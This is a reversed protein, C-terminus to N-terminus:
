IQRDGLLTALARLADITTFVGVIQGNERVVVSGLKQDAMVQAVKQIPETPSVCYVFQSMAESISVTDPKVDRLTEIFDLDRESLLGVLNGGELVPLHRVGAQRMLRHASALTQDQGITHPSRTMFREITPTSM